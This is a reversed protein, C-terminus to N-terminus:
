ARLMGLTELCRRLPGRLAEDLPTLPLRIQPGVRNMEFLAWKVPIPNTELALMKFLPQLRQDLTRAAEWDQASALRVLEHMEAPVVNAAVSVM